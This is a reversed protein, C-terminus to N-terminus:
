GAVRVGNAHWMGGHRLANLDGIVWANQGECAAADILKRWVRRMEAMDADPPPPTNFRVACGRGEESAGGMGWAIPPM